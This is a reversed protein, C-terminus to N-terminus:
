GTATAWTGMKHRYLTYRSVAMIRKPQPNYCNHTLSNCRITYMSLALNAWDTYHRALSQVVPRDLNSGWCLHFSKKRAETHLGARPGVWEGTCHSGPTKEGPSFSPWPMISVGWGWRTSLDINLLLQVEEGELRRWPMYHSLKLKKTCQLM